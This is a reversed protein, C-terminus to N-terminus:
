AQSGSLSAQVPFVESSLLAPIPGCGLAFALIYGLTGVLSLTGAMSQLAPVSM